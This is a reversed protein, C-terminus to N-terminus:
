PNQRFGGPTGVQNRGLDVHWLENLADLTDHLRTVAELMDLVENELEQALEFMEGADERASENIAEM